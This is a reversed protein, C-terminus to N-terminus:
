CELAVRSFYRNQIRYPPSRIRDGAPACVARGVVQGVIPFSRASVVSRFARNDGIERLLFVGFAGSLPM